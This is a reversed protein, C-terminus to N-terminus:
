KAVVRPSKKSDSESSRGPSFLIEKKEKAALSYNQSLQIGEIEGNFTGSAASDSHNVLTASITIRAEQFTELDLKTQVFPDEISVPGIRRLKVERFLGM